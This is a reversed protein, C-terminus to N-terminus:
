ALSPDTGYSQCVWLFDSNLIQADLWFDVGVGALEGYSSIKEAWRFPQGWALALARASFAVASYVRVGPSAENLQSHVQNTSLVEVNMYTGISAEFIGKSGAYQNAAVWDPDNLLDFEQQPSILCVYKGKAGNVGKANHISLLSSLRKLDHASFTDTQTISTKSSATGSFIVNPTTIAENMIMTDVKRAAWESLLTRAEKRMDFIVKKGAIMTWCVGNGKRVPILTIRSLNIKEEDGEILHTTGLDGAASLQSLKNVYITDGEKNILEDKMIVADQLATGIFQNWWLQEQFEREVDRAWIKPIAGALEDEDTCEDDRIGLPIDFNKQFFKESLLAESM